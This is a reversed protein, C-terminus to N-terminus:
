SNIGHEICGLLTMVMDVGTTTDLLDIPHTDGLAPIRSKLWAICQGDDQFLEEAAPYVKAITM